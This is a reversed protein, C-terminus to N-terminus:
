RATLVYHPAEDTVAMGFARLRATIEGRLTTPVSEAISARYLALEHREQERAYEKRMRDFLKGRDAMGPTGKLKRSTAGIDYICKMLARLAGDADQAPAGGTPFEVKVGIEPGFGRTMLPSTDIPELGFEECMAEYIMVAGRRKGEVAYGAIHPTAILPRDILEPWPEPEGEYVDLAARIRGEDLATILAESDVVAGRSSNVLLADEQMLGLAEDDIMHYTPYASEGTRTLPVHCTVFDAAMTEDFADSVFEPDRGQLPPDYRLIRMGFGAARAAVRSGCNGHGVIGLTSGSLPEGARGTVHALAYWVWDAVSDANSGPASVVVISREGSANLREIYDTDIHDTGITATGIFKVNRAADILAPTVETVSRIALADFEELGPYEADVARGSVSTVEGISGFLEDALPINQDVLIKM